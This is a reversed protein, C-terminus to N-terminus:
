ALKDKIYVNKITDPYVFCLDYMMLTILLNNNYRRVPVNIYDTKNTFRNTITAPIRKRNFFILPVSVSSNILGLIM